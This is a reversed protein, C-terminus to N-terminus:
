GITVTGATGDVTILMGDKIRKTAQNVALVAPIGLERSVIAAHSLPSGVNVVVAEASAFLPTWGPDTVPAVLIEGPELDAADEPDHIIRAFGTATGSCAGLGTLIDGSVAPTATPATRKEWTLVSPVEGEIVFPPELEELQAKWEKRESILQRARDPDSSLLKLEDLTLLTADEVDDLVGARTYRQAIEILPLRVEHLIRVTNTKSLERAPMWVSMAELAQELRALTEPQDKLRERLEETLAEREKRVRPAMAEPSRDDPQLRMRDILGLAVHPHTEWTAPMAEWEDTSRSGYEYIFEDFEQVFCVHDEDTNARLRENLDKTGAEFAATLSESKQVMRSLKWLGHSAAASAVGGWGGMLRVELTPDNLDALTEQLLGTVVSSQYIMLLHKRLVEAYSGDLIQQYRNLLEQDSLQSLDPRQARLEAAERADQELDPRSTTNFVENVVAGIRETYEPADDGPQPVYPTVGVSEGLYSRDMLEASGGPMRVGFVRTISLNMYIYGHILATIDLTDPRFEHDDFAGFDVLAKRWQQEMFDGGTTTWKLPTTVQGAVEGTNGRTYIPFRPHLEATDGIWPQTIDIM